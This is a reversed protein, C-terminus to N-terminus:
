MMTESQNEYIDVMSGQVVYREETALADMSISHIALLMVIGMSLVRTLRKKM